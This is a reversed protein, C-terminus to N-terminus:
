LRSVIRRGTLAIVVAGALLVVFGARLGFATSLFGISPPALLQGGYGLTAVMALAAAPPVGPVRSAASFVIPVINSLGLGAVLLAPYAFAVNPAAILGALAVSTLAGSWGITRAPGLRAVVRDGFLRGTTMAASFVAYGAAAMALPAGVADRLFVASWELMAGECEFACLALLGLGAAAATPWRLGHGGESPPEAGPLELGLSAAATVAVLLAATAGLSEFPSAGLGILGAAAAGGTLGGVSFFAHISSMIPKGTAQEVAGAHANMAIDLVGLSVGLVFAVVGLAVANPAFPPAALGLAFVLSAVAAVRAPGFRHVVGASAPMAIVAGIGMSLLVLGLTGDGLALGAKLIPIHASWVGLGVGAVFFLATVSLRARAIRRADLSIPMTM